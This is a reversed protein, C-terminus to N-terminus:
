STGGVKGVLGTALAQVAGPLKDDPVRQICHVLVNAVCEADAFL